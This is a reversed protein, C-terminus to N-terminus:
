LLKFKRIHIQRLLRNPCFRVPHNYPPIRQDVSVNEFNMVESGVEVPVVVFGVFDIVNQKM